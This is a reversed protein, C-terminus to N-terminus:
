FKSNVIKCYYGVTLVYYLFYIATYIGATIIIPYVINIRLIPQLISLAFSSHAIAIILPLAFVFLIQKAVSNRIESNNVGIKKLIEYKDKDDSAESLQKFFIISGTCLLFVLGIFAALFILIGMNSMTDTYFSYYSSAPIDSPNYLNSLELTDLVKESVDKSEVQNAINILNLKIASEKKYLKTYLDDKVVIADQTPVEVSYMQNIPLHDQFNNIKVPIDGNSDHFYLTMGTPKKMVKDSFMNLLLLVENNNFSMTEKIGQAELIKKYTSESLVLTTVDQYDSGTDMIKMLNPEKASLKLFEAKLSNKIKNDPSKNLIDEISKDLTADKSLYAFSFPAAENISSIQDYYISSCTGMATITTASLVAITALSRGHSKIRYLLNSTAIMNLGKFYKIKNRKSIKVIFVVFSSFFFYTGVVTVALIILLKPLSDYNYAYAMYYGTGILIISLLAFIFSAKPKKQGVKESKFLEILQFRYILTYGHLAAIIFLGLFIISTNLIAMYSISFKITVDFSMLKVLIMLFLKSFLSGLLIGTILALLGMLINEYFLMRAVERKKVGLMCYLAVEKKRKRTFFSNSYLIFMAAFIAIIISAAKFSTSLKASADAAEVVQSNYQISTFIFYIMISFVMSVFYLFYNYFNRRINKFAISFLSM